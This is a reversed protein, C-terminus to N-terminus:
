RLPGQFEPPSVQQERGLEGTKKWKEGKVGAPDELYVLPFNGLTIIDGSELVRREVPEGNVYTGNLSSLDEVEFHGNRFVLRAHLRSVVPNQLIINNDLNRGITFITRELQVVQGEFLLFANKMTPM